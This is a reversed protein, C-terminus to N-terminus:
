PEISKPATMKAPNRNEMKAQDAWPPYNRLIFYIGSIKLGTAGPVSDLMVGDAPLERRLRMRTLDDVEQQIQQVENELDNLRQGIM